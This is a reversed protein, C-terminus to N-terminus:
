NVELLRTERLPTPPAALAHAIFPGYSRAIFSCSRWLRNESKIMAWWLWNYPYMKASTLFQSSAASRNRDTQKTRHRFNSEYSGPLLPKKGDPSLRRNELHSVEQPLLLRLSMEGLFQQVGKVIVDKVALAVRGYEVQIREPAALFLECQCVHFQEINMVAFVEAGLLDGIAHSPGPLAHAVRQQASPSPQQVAYPYTQGSLFMRPLFGM